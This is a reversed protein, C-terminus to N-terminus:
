FTQKKWLSKWLAEKVENNRIMYIFPSLMPCVLANLLFISKNISFSSTMTNPKLYIFFVPGYLIGVMILHSACTSFARQQGSTSPIRIITSIIFTYSVMTLFLSTLVVSVAILFFLTEILHTDGGAIKLMPGIDCFFHDIINSNCFNLRAVMAFPFIITFFGGFSSALSCKLCVMPTMITNYRLPQCIALYRDFSMLTLIFFETVGFLFYFYSQVMCCYFCITTNVSLLNVLMKPIIATTYGIELVSLNSLFFYMPKQLHSNMQVLVIILGNGAICLFYLLCVAAFLPINIRGTQPIGFLIFETVKMCNTLDM